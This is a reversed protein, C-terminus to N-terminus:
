KTPRIVSWLETTNSRLDARDRGTLRGQGKPRLYGQPYRYSNGAIEYDSNLYQTREAGCDRCKLIRKIRRPRREIIANWPKWGHGIDRCMLYSQNIDVHNSM